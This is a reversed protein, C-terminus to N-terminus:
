SSGQISPMSGHRLKRRELVHNRTVHIPIPYCFDGKPSTGSPAEREPPGSPFRVRSRRFAMAGRPTGPRGDPAERYGEVLSLRTWPPCGTAPSLVGYQHTWLLPITVPPRRPFGPSWMDAPHLPPVVEHPRAASLRGAARVGVAGSRRHVIGDPQAPTCPIPAHRGGCLPFTGLWETSLPAVPGELARVREESFALREPVDGSLVGASTQVAVAGSYSARGLRGIAREPDQGLGPDLPLRTGLCPESARAIRRKVDFFKRM